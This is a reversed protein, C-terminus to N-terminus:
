FPFPPPDEAPPDGGPPDEPPPVYPPPDPAPPAPIFASELNGEVDFVFTMADAGTLRGMSDYTYDSRSAAENTTDLTPDNGSEIEFIDRIGNLNADGNGGETGTLSNFWFQEIADHIGDSDTDVWALPTFPNLGMMLKVMSGIGDGAFDELAPETTPDDTYIYRVFFKNSGQVEGGISRPGGSFEIVPLYDMTVLDLSGQPFYSRGAFGQWDATWTDGVGKTVIIPSETIPDAYLYGSPAASIMLTLFLNKSKM